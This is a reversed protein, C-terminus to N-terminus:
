LAGRVLQASLPQSKLAEAAEWPPATSLLTDQSHSVSNLTFQSSNEALESTDQDLDEATMTRDPTQSDLYIFQV